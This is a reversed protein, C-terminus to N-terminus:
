TWAPSSRPWSAAAPRTSTPRPSTSCWSTPSWPWCRPWRWGAGSGSASTTRRATPSTRWASPTSPPRRGPRGARRGCASTPRGSPWTRACRRCSCSTTPTRSSSASGAGSRRCTDAQGGAPRGGRGARGPCSSATSTCCWRPRARGTPASCPWGSAGARGHPRGRVAGPARRPLRLRAGRGRPRRRDPTMPRRGWATAAVLPPPPRCRVPRGAVPAADRGTRRAGPMAGDYGRSLMALYVREGREYSRIFLAGASAAVARAQWIWRPDYGRSVRAIACAACRASSSTATASWSGPWSPSRRGPRAAPRPRPAPRAGAHHRGAGGHRGGGPHGQGPHELGGVARRGVALTRAGRGARGAGVFPLLVAFLWSRCRSSSGGPWSRRAAGRGRRGAVALALAYVGFAWFAERPTAVVALVFLVTAAVKCQPPLRHLPSTGPVYLAHAHGAGVTLGGPHAGLAKGPGAASRRRQRVLSCGAASPSPSPVGILGALGTSLREDDVGEVAYDALPGDALAHDPEDRDFGQDEAVKELGDPSSAPSASQRLLALAM